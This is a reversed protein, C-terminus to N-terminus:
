SLPRKWFVEAKDAHARSVGSQLRQPRDWPGEPSWAALPTSCGRSSIAWGAQLLTSNPEREAWILRSTGQGRPSAPGLAGSGPCFLHPFHAPAMLAATLLEWPSKPVEDGRCLGRGRSLESGPRPRERPGADLEAKVTRTVRGGSAMLLRASACRGPERPSQM